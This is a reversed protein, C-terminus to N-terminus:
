FNKEQKKTLVKKREIINTHRRRLTATALRLSKMKDQIITDLTWICNIDLIGLKFDCYFEAVAFATTSNGGTFKGVRM